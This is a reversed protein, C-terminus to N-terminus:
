EVKILVRITRNKRENYNIYGKRKLAKLHFHITAPSSKGTLKCLERVSPSYGNEEIYNQIKLLVERQMESIKEM